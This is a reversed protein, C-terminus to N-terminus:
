IRKDYLIKHDISYIELYTNTARLSSPITIKYEFEYGRWGTPNKLTVSTPTTSAALQNDDTANWRQATSNRDVYVDYQFATDSKYNITTEVLTKELEPMGYNYVKSKWTPNLSTSDDTTGYNLKYIKSSDAGYLYGTKSTVLAKISDAMSHIAWQKTELNYVYLKKDTPFAIYIENNIADYGIYGESMDSVGIPANTTTEIPYSLKNEDMDVFYIGKNFLGLIGGEIALVGFPSQTGLYDFSKHKKFGMVLGSSIIYRLTKTDGVFYIFNDLLHMSMIEYMGRSALNFVNTIPIYDQSPSGDPKITSFAVMSPESAECFCNGVVSNQDTYVVNSYNIRDGSFGGVEVSYEFGHNDWISANIVITKTYPDSGAWGFENIDWVNSISIERGSPLIITTNGFAESAARLAATVISESMNKTHSYKVTYDNRIPVHAVKYFVGDNTAYDYDSSMYIDLATVRKNLVTSHRMAPGDSFGISLGVSIQNSADTDSITVATAKAKAGSTLPGTQYGDYVYACAIYYTDADLADDTSAATSATISNLVSDDPADLTAPELYFGESISADTTGFYTNDRIYGYWLPFQKPFRYSSGLTMICNNLRQTFKIKDDVTLVRKKKYIYYTDGDTQGTVAAHVLQRNLGLYTGNYDTISQTDGAESSYVIWGNYIDDLDSRLEFHVSSWDEYNIIQTTSSGTDATYAGEHQVILPYRYLSFSDNRACGTIDTLLTLTNTDGDYDSILAGEHRTWNYLYWNNYYDDTSSSLNSCVVAETESNTQATLSEENETLEVWGQTWSSGDYTYDVYIRDEGGVTAHVMTITQTSPKNVNFQFFNKITWGTPYTSPLEDGAMDTIGAAKVIAGPKTSVSFRSLTQCENEMDSPDFKTNIGKFNHLREIKETM